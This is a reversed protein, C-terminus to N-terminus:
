TTTIEDKIFLLFDTFRKSDFNKYLAVISMVLCDKETKNFNHKVHGGEKGSWKISHLAIIWTPSHFIVRELLRCKM